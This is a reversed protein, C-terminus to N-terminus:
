DIVWRKVIRWRDSKDIQICLDLKHTDGATIVDLSQIVDKMVAERSTLQSVEQEKKTSVVEGRYISQSTVVKGYEINSM